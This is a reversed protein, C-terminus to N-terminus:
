AKQAVHQCLAYLRPVQEAIVVSESRWEFSPGIGGYELAVTKPRAWEGREICGMVAEVRAWDDEQLPLHDEREHLVPHDGIGTIHLEGLRHTPLMDLYTQYDQQTNACTIVAHSVDLLLGCGAAAIVDRLVSADAGQKLIQRKIEYHSYPVNELIVRETGFHRTLIELERVSQEIVGDRDVGSPFSPACPAFHANVFPTDTRTLWGDIAALDLAAVKNLGIVIPFHIYVPRQQQAEAVMDTWDPCKYLDIEIRQEALLAAAQPSYNIAFRMM